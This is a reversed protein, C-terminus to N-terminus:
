YGAISYLSIGNVQTFARPDHPFENVVEISYLSPSGGDSVGYQRSSNLYTSLVIVFFFFALVLAFFLLRRYNISPRQPLAMFATTTTGINESHSKSSRKGLKRKTVM